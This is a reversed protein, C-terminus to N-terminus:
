LIVNALEQRLAAEPHKTLDKNIEAIVRARVRKSLSKRLNGLMRPAAVLVLRDFANDNVATDLWQALRLTFFFGQHQSAKAHPEYKHHIVGGGSSVVRGVSKNTLSVHNLDPSAEGLCELHPGNKRFIKAIHEDAVIVWVLPIKHHSASLQMEGFDRLDGTAIKGTLQM